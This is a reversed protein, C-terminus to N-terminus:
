GTTEAAATRLIAADVDAATYVPLLFEPANYNLSFCEALQGADSLLPLLEFIFRCQAAAAIGQLEALRRLPLLCTAGGAEVRSHPALIETLQTAAAAPEPLKWTVFIAPLSRRRILQFLLEGAEGDQRGNSHLAYCLGNHLLVLHPPPHLINLLVIYTGSSLQEFGHLATLSLKMEQAAFTCVRCL